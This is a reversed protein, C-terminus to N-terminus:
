KGEKLIDIEEKEVKGKNEVPRMHPFFLVDRISESNTLLMVVRDIGVGLGGTPPMGYELARLFDEDFSEAEQDGAKRLARQEEFRGRQDIPDNLESFANAIEIGDVILEFREVLKPDGRKRKALPTTEVPHDTIFTPQKLEPEVFKDYLLNIVKGIGLEEAGEIGHKVAAKKLDAEKMSIDIGAHEKLAQALTIRKWPPTFDIVDGKWSVKLSGNVEKIVSCLMDETLKMIGEYDTYAKYLELMTYEPNHKFSMGENRFVRGIEYVRELGGVILRKLHIELAIRLYLDMDLANHYTEFPRATAGGPMVHLVPTEVELFGDNDLYKRILSIIRCRKKFTERVEPNVILDVYRERYRLEKDTLGHWKEPLPHLSKSLLVFKAVKVTIEGKKTRFVHGKIGIIDGMDLKEFLAFDKEGIIDVKLYIQVVGSHDQINAFCAKGHGRKTMIRGALSVEEKSEEEAIDKYKELISAAYHTQDYSYPFPEIGSAVLEDLKARRIKLLESLEESM